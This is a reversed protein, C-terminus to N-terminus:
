YWACGGLSRELYLLYRIAFAKSDIVLFVFLKGTLNWLSSRVSFPLSATGRDIQFVDIFAVYLIGSMRALGATVFNILCAAFAVSWAEIGDPGFRKDTPCRFSSIHCIVKVKDLFNFCFDTIYDNNKRRVNMKKENCKYNVPLNLAWKYSIKNFSQQFTITKLLYLM